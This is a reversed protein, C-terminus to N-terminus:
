PGTRPSAQAIARSEGMDLLDLPVFGLPAAVLRVPYRRVEANFAGVAANFFRLAGSLENAFEGLEDRLQLLDPGPEFDARARALAFLRGLAMTLANEAAVRKELRRTSVAARAAAVEGLEGGADGTAAKMTEVLRPILDQRRKLAIDIDAFANDAARRLALLRNYAGIVWRVVLALIILVIVFPIM